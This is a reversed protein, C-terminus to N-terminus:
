VQRGAVAFGLRERERPESSTEERSAGDPAPDLLKIVACPPTGDGPCQHVAQELMQALRSLDAIKGQISALHRLAIARGADCCVPGTARWALLMRIDALPFGFERARHIFALTRVDDVGYVRHGAATRPPATLMGIREYYRITELNVSAHRSAQGISLGENRLRNTTRM